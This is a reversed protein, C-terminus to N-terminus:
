LLSIQRTLFGQLLQLLLQEVLALILRIRVGARRLEPHIMSSKICM